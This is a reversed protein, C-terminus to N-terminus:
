TSVVANNFVLNNGIGGAAVLSSWDWTGTCKGCNTGIRVASSEVDITTKAGKFHINSDSVLSRRSPDIGFVSAYHYSSM